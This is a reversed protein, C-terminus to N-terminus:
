YSSLFIVGGAAGFGAWFNLYIGCWLGKTFGCLPGFFGKPNPPPSKGAVRYAFINKKSNFKLSFFLYGGGFVFNCGLLYVFFAVLFHWGCVLLLEKGLYGHELRIYEDIFEKGFFAASGLGLAGFKVGIFFFSFGKNNKNKIKKGGGTFIFFLLGLHM